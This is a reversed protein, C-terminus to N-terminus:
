RIAAFRLRTTYLGVPLRYVHDRPIDHWFPPSPQPKTVTVKSGAKAFARHRYGHGRLTVYKMWLLKAERDYAFEVSRKDTRRSIRGDTRMRALDRLPIGGFNLAQWEYKRLALDIEDHDAGSDCALGVDIPERRKKIPSKMSLRSINVGTGLDV